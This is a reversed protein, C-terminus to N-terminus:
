KVRIPAPPVTTLKGDANLGTSGPQLGIDAMAKREADDPTQLGEIFEELSSSTMGTTATPGKAKTM